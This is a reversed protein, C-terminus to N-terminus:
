SRRLDRLVEYQAALPDLSVGAVVLWAHAALAGSEDRRVGILLTPDLKRICHGLVLARRLCTDGFPWHRLVQNVALARQRIWSVPLGPLPASGQQQKSECDHDLRIGLLRTLRSLTCLRLGVEVVLAVIAVQPDLLRFARHLVVLGKPWSM